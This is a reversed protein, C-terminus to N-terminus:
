GTGWGGEDDSGAWLGWVCCSNSAGIHTSKCRPCCNMLTDNKFTWFDLHCKKCHHETGKKSVEKRTGYMKLVDALFEPQETMRSAIDGGAAKVLDGPYDFYHTLINNRICQTGEINTDWIKSILDIFDPTHAITGVEDNINAAALEILAPMRYKDGMTLMEIDHRVMELVHDTTPAEAVRDKIGYSGTYIFKLM